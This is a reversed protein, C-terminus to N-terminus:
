SGITFVPMHSRNHYDVMHAGLWSAVIVKIPIHGISNWRPESIWHLKQLVLYAIKKVNKNFLNVYKYCALCYSDYIFKDSRRQQNQKILKVCM